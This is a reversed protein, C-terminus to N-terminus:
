RKPRGKDLKMVPTVHKLNVEYLRQFLRRADEAQRAVPEIKEDTLGFGYEADLKRVIEKMKKEEWTRDIESPLLWLRHSAPRAEFLDPYLNCNSAPRATRLCCSGQRYERGRRMQDISRRKLRPYSVTCRSQVGRVRPTEAVVFLVAYPLLYFGNDCSETM